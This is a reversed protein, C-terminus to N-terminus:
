WRGRLARWALRIGDFPRDIEDLQGLTVGPDRQVSRLVRESWLLPMLAPVMPRHQFAEQRAATIERIGTEAEGHFIDRVTDTLTGRALEALDTGAIGPFRVMGDSAAMARAHRLAFARGMPLDIRPPDAKQGPCLIVAAAGRLAGFRQSAWLKWEHESQTPGLELERAVIMHDLLPHAHAFQPDQILGALPAAVEHGKPPKGSQAEDIADRWWQLRMRPILSEKSARTARSLECDFAYLVMLRTRAPEPAFLATAYLHPDDRQVIEACADTM